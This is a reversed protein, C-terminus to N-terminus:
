CDTCEYYMSQTFFYNVPAFTLVSLQIIPANSETSFTSFWPPPQAYGIYGYSLREFELRIESSEKSDPDKQGFHLVHLKVNGLGNHDEM